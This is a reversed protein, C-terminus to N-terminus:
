RLTVDVALQARFFLPLGSALVEIAREDDAAVSLRHNMDRLKANFRVTAAERFVRRSGKDKTKRIQHLRNQTSRETWILGVSM